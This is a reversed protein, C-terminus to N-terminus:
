FYSRRLDEMETRLRNASESQATNEMQTLMKAIHQMMLEAKSIQNDLLYTRCLDIGTDCEEFQNEIKQWLSMSKLLSAKSEKYLTLNRQEIGINKHITALHGIDAVEEFATAAERYLELAQHFNKEESYLIGLNIKTSAVGVQDSVSEFLEIARHYGYMAENIKGLCVYTPGLNRYGWAMKRKSGSQKWLELSKELYLSSQELEGLRFDSIGLVYLSNARDIDHLDLNKLGCSALSRAEEYHEQRLAVMALRNFAKGKGALNGLDCFIEQATWFTQNAKVYDHMLLHLYGAHLSLTAEAVKDGIKQSLTIGQQLYPLWRSREGSLEMKPALKDLLCWTGPWAADDRLCYSLVHHALDKDEQTINKDPDPDIREFTSQIGNRRYKTFLSAFNTM